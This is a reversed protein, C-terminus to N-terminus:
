SVVVTGIMNPHIECFYDFTGPTDFTNEFTAGQSLNGSAFGSGAPDQTVTHQASDNNTWTVTDGASIEITQPNFAFGEITVNAPATAPAAASDDDDVDDADDADDAGGADDAVDDDAVDDVQDSHMIFVTVTTSGDGNDHLLANGFYDSDNLEALGIALDTEGILSGGIDGCAIYNEIGEGTARVTLAHSSAVLESLSVPATTVSVKIAIASGAGAQSTGASPTGDVLHEASVNSLPAVVEGLAGCDGAIINAPHSADPDGQASVTHLAVGTGLAAILVLALPVAILSRRSHLLRHM